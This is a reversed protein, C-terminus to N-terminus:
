KDLNNKYEKYFKELILYTVKEASKRNFMPWICVGYKISWSKVTRFAAKINMKSRAPPNLFLTKFDFELVLAAYQMNAMRQFEKEFRKRNCGVSGLFDNISKREVCIRDELGAVSYDGTTLGQIIMEPPEPKINQFTYPRQERTDIIITFDSIM